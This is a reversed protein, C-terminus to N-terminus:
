KRRSRYRRKKLAKELNVRLIEQVMLLSNANPGLLALGREQFERDESNYLILVIAGVITELDDQLSDQNRTNMM